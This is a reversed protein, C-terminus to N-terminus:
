TKNAAKYEDFRPIYSHLNHWYLNAASLIFFLSGNKINKTYAM